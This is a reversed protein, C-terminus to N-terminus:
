ETPYKAESAVSADTAFKRPVGTRAEWQARGM